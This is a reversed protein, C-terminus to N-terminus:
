YKKSVWDIILELNDILKYEGNKEEIFWEDLWYAILDRFLICKWKDKILGNFDIYARMLRQLEKGIKIKVM